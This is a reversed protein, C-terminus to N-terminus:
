LSILNVYEANATHSESSVRFPLWIETWTARHSAFSDQENIRIIAKSELLKLTDKFKDESNNRQCM